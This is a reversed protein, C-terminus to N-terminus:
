KKQKSARKYFEEVSYYLNNSKQINLNQEHKLKQLEAIVQALNCTRILQILEDINM